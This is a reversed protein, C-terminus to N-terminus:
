ALKDKAQAILRVIRSYTSATRGNFVYCADNHLEADLLLAQRGSDLANRILAITSIKNFNKAPKPFNKM